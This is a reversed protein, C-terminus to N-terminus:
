LGRVVHGRDSCTAEQVDSLAIILQFQAAPHGSRLGDMQPCDLFAYVRRSVVLGLSLTGCFHGDPRRTLDGARAGSPQGNQVISRLAETQARAGECKKPHAKRSGQPSGAPLRPAASRQSFPVRSSCVFLSAGESEREARRASM